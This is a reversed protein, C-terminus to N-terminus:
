GRIVVWTSWTSLDSEYVEQIMAEANGLNRQLKPRRTAYMFEMEAGSLIKPTEISCTSIIVYLLPVQERLHIM